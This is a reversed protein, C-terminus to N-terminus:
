CTAAGTNFRAVNFDFTGGGPVVQGTSALVVQGSPAVAMTLDTQSVGGIHPISLGATGFSTDLSGDSNYQALAISAPGSGNIATGSAVIKGSLLVAINLGTSWTTNPFLTTVQGNAGFSADLTGNTNYRAIDFGGSTSTGAGGIVLLNGDAQQALGYATEGNKGSGFTTSVVGSTGFTTDITGGANLRGVLWHPDSSGAGGAVVIQQNSQLILSDINTIATGGSFKLVALGSQGFSVDQTGSSNLRIVAAFPGLQPSTGSAGVVINGQSDLAARRGNWSAGNGADAAPLAITTIGQSGFQSDLTGNPLYRAVVINTGDGGVVVIDGNPQILVANATATSNGTTIPTSVMGGAGFTTDLTGDVNYRVIGFASGFTAPNTVNGVEVVKGDSQVAVNNATDSGSATGPHSQAFGAWGLTFDASGAAPPVPLNTHIVGSYQDNVLPAGVPSSLNLVFSKDPEPTTNPKVLVVVPLNTVGPAFTLVGSAATYDTGALATGDATSYAVTVQQTSTPGLQVRFILPVPGTSSAQVSQDSSFLVTTSTLFPIGTFRAVNFNAGTSALVINNSVPDLAMSVDFSSEDNQAAGVTTALGATGFAPNLTGDALYEALAFYTGSQGNVTLSGGVVIKGTPDVAVALANAREGTFNTTLTGGSGFTTDLSGDPNYRAVDFGGASAPSSDGVAVIKGDPQEALANVSEQSKGFTTVVAGSTGFTPDPRGAATFRLLAWDNANGSDSGGVMISGDQEVLLSDVDTITATPFNAFAM